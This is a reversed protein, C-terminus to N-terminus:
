PAPHPDPWGLNDLPFLSTLTLHPPNEIKLEHERARESFGRYLVNIEWYRNLLVFCCANNEKFVDTLDTCEVYYAVIGGCMQVWM